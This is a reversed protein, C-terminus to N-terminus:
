ILPIMTLSNDYELPHTYNNLRELLPMIFAIFALRICFHPRGLSQYHGKEAHMGPFAQEYPARRTYAGLRVTRDRIDYFLLFISV